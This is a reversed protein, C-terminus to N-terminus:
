SRAASSRDLHKHPLLQADLASVRAQEAQRGLQRRQAVRKCHRPPVQRSNHALLHLLILSRIPYTNCNRWRRHHAPPQLRLLQKTQIPHRFLIFKTIRMPQLQVLRIVSPFEHTTKPTSLNVTLVQALSFYPERAWNTNCIIFLRVVGHRHCFLERFQQFSLCLFCIREQLM